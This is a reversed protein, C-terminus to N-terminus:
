DRGSCCYRSCVPRPSVHSYQRIEFRTCREAPRKKEKTKILPFAYRYSHYSVPYSSLLSRGNGDKCCTQTCGVSAPRRSIATEADVSAWMPPRVGHLCPHWSSRALQFFRAVHQRFSLRYTAPQSSQDARYSTAGKRCRRQNCLQESQDKDFRLTGSALAM